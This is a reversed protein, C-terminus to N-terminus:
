AVTEAQPLAETQTLRAAPVPFQEAMEKVAARIAAVAHPDAHERLARLIWTAIQRM